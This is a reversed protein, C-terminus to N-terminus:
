RWNRNEEMGRVGMKEGEIRQDRKREILTAETENEDAM